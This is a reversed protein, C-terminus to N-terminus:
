WGRQRSLGLRRLQWLMDKYCYAVSVICFWISAGDKAPGERRPLHLVMPWLGTEAGALVTALAFVMVATGSELLM